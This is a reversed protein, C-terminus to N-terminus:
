INIDTTNPSLFLCQLSIEAASERKWPFLLATIELSMIKFNKMKQSYTLQAAM